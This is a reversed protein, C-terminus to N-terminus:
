WVQELNVRGSLQMLRPSAALGDAVATDWLHFEDDDWEEFADAYSQSLQSARLLRVARQVAGSRSLGNHAESYDALFRLDEDPLNVSVKM